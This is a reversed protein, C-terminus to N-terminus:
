QLIVHGRDTRGVRSAPAAGGEKFRILQRGADVLHRDVLRRSELFVFFGQTLRHGEENGRDSTLLPSCSCYRVQSSRQTVLSYVLLHLVKACSRRSYVLLSLSALGNLREDSRNSYSAYLRVKM